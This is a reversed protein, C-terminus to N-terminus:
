NFWHTLSQPAVIAAPERLAGTHSQGAGEEDAVAPHADGLVQRVESSVFAELASSAVIAVSRGKQTLSAVDADRLPQSQVGEPGRDLIEPSIKSVNFNNWHGLWGAPVRALLHVATSLNGEDYRFYKRKLVISGRYPPPYNPDFWILWISCKPFM